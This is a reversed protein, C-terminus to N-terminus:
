ARRRGVAIAALGVAVLASWPSLPSQQEDDEVGGGGDRPGTLDQELWMGLREHGSLDCWLYIATEDAPIQVTGTASAGPEVEGITGYAREPSTDKHTSDASSLPAITLQHDTSGENRFTVNLTSGPSLHSLSGEVVDLCYDRDGGCASATDHAEITVHVQGTGHALAPTASVLLVLAVAFGM